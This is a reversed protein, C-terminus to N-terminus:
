NPADEPPRAVLDGDEEAITVAYGRCRRIMDRRIIDAERGKAVNVEARTLSV